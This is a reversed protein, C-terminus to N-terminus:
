STLIRIQQTKGGLSYMYSPLSTLVDAVRNEKMIDWEGFEFDTEGIVNKYRPDFNRSTTKEFPCETARNFEIPYFLSSVQSESDM